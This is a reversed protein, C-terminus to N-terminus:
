DVHCSRAKVILRVPSGPELGLSKVAEETASVIWATKNTRVVVEANGDSSVIKEVSGQLINRASLGQVEGVALLVDDARIRVTVPEGITNNPAHVVLETGDALRVVSSGESRSSEVLTAVFFNYISAFRSGNSGQVHSIVDFPEGKEVVAGAQLRFLTQGIVIAESPSHTVFLLPIREAEQVSRLRGLLQHRSDMDLASVPEDCLLLKPKNALARALGVRQREGGSLTNPDRELLKEVGCLKSVEDLRGNAQERTSDKLGFVINRAVNMHPFLLDDQFIFGVGRERLPVNIHQSSDFLTREGLVISGSDPHALGSILRLLTTKGAGSTGFVVGREVGLRLQIQLNLGPHVRHTLDILLVPDDIPNGPPNM